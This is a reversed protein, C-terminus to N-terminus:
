DDFRGMMEVRKIEKPRSLWDAQDAKVSEMDIVDPQAYLWHQSAYPEVGERKVGTGPDPYAIHCHSSVVYRQCGNLRNYPCEIEKCINVLKLRALRMFESSESM